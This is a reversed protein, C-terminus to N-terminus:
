NRPAPMNGAVLTPVRPQLRAYVPMQRDFGVPLSNATQIPQQSGVDPVINGTLLTLASGPRGVVSPYANSGTDARQWPATVSTTVATDYNPFPDGNGEGGALAPLSFMTAAVAALLLTKM